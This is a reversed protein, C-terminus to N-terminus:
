RTTFVIKNETISYQWNLATAIIQAFSEATPESFSGSYQMKEAEEPMEINKSLFDGLQEAVKTLPDNNFSFTGTKWAILNEDAPRVEALQNQKCLYSIQQGKTVIINQTDKGFSVKGSIVLLDVKACNPYAKLNFETGLVKTVVQQPTNIIFSQGTKTVHFLAEGELSVVREHNKSHYSYSLNSNKNLYVSSSDPLIFEQQNEASSYYITQDKPNSFLFFLGVVLVVSAAVASAWVFSPRITRKKAITVERLQKFNKWEEDIDPQIKYSINGTFSWIKEVDSIYQANDPQLIWDQLLQKEADTLQGDSLKKAIIDSIFEQM